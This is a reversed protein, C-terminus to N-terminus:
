EWPGYEEADDTNEAEAYATEIFDKLICEMVGCTSLFLDRGRKNALEICQSSIDESRDWVQLIDLLENWTAEDVDDISKCKERLFQILAPVGSLDCVAYDFTQVLEDIAELLKAHIRSM